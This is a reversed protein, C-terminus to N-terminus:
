KVISFKGKIDAELFVSGCSVNSCKYLYFNSIDYNLANRIDSDMVADEYGKFLLTAGCDPCSMGQIHSKIDKNDSCVYYSLVVVGMYNNNVYNVFNNMM